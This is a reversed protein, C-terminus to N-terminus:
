LKAILVNLEAVKDLLQQKITPQVPVTGAGCFAKFDDLSGMFWDIDLGLSEMGAALGPGNWAFQWVKMNTFAIKPPALTATYEIATKGSPVTPPWSLWFPRNILWSPIPSLYEITSLNTYLGSETGLGADVKTMWNQIMDLCNQRPPLAPYNANPREFDLWGRTRQKGVFWDAMFKGQNGAEPSGNWYELFGYVMRPISHADCDGWYYEFLRDRVIGQSARLIVGEIGASKMKGLEPKVATSAADQYFSIDCILTRETSM